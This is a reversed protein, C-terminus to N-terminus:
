LPIHGVCSCILHSLTRSKLPIQIHRIAINIICSLLGITDHITIHSQPIHHRQRSQRTLRIVQQPMNLPQIRTPSDQQILITKFPTISIFITLLSQPLSLLQQIGDTLTFRFQRISFPLLHWPVISHTTGIRRIAIHSIPFPRLFLM